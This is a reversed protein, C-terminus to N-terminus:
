DDERAPPLNRQIATSIPHHDRLYKKLLDATLKELAGKDRNTIKDLEDWRVQKLRIELTKSIEPSPENSPMAM